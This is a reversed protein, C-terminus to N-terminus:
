VAAHLVGAAGRRKSIPGRTALVLSDLVSDIEDLTMDVAIPLGIIQRGLRTTRPLRDATFQGFQKQVHLGSGYWRRWPLKQEDAIRLFEDVHAAGRSLYLAYASSVTPYVCLAKIGRKLARQSYMSSVHTFMEVREAWDDLMALGIAAHYESMKGNFGEATSERSGRFGFNLTQAILQQKESDLWFVAGGEGTAFAKTAHFSVAMPIHKSFATRHPPLLDFSAAADIVVPIGTTERLKELAPVHPPRGYPAVAIIVGAQSRLPHDALAIPDIAWTEPDIDVFHPTYGCRIAALAPAPFTYAPVFALKKEGVARGAAVIIAAELAATGSSAVVSSGSPLAFHDDLRCELRDVLAGHNSYWRNSDIQSLYPLLREAQPLLPRMVQCVSQM